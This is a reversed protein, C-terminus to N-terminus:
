KFNFFSINLCKLINENKELYAFSIIDVKVKKTINYLYELDNDNNLEDDPDLNLLYKGSSHLIGMARSYLLGYNKTNNIIKIRSDNKSLNYIIKYSNDTSYDNVAIIEIDKLSQKQISKISNLLLIEKNYIPLYISIKPSMNKFFNFQIVFIFNFFILFIKIKKM